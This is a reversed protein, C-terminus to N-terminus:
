EEDPDSFDKCMELFADWTWEDNAFLEAPDDFGWEDIVRRNYACVHEIGIDTIIMYAKDGLSFHEAAFDATGVWLPDNYDIYDNVPQFVGKIAYAPFTEIDGPYCDPPTGGLVLNALDDFRAAWTCEVWKLTCGYKSNFTFYGTNVIEDESYNQLSDYWAYWKVVSGACATTEADPLMIGAAALIAEADETSLTLKIVERQAKGCGVLAIIMLVALLVAFARKM